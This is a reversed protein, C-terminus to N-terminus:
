SCQNEEQILKNERDKLLDGSQQFGPRLEACEDCLLEGEEIIYGYISNWRVGHLASEEKGCQTCKM